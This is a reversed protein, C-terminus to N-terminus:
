RVAAPKKKKLLSGMPTTLRPDGTQPFYNTTGDGMVASGPLQVANNQGYAGGSGVPVAKRTPGSPVSPNPMLRQMMTGIDPAQLDGGAQLRRNFFPDSFQDVTPEGQNGTPIPTMNSMLSNLSGPDVGPVQGMQAFQTMASRGQTAQRAEPSLSVASQNFFGNTLPNGANAVGPSYAHNADGQPDNRLQSLMSGIDLGAPTPTVPKPGFMQAMLQILM